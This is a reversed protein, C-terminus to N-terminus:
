VLLEEPLSHSLFNVPSATFGYAGSQLVGILDDVYLEPLFVNEAIIDLPSCLPGVVTAAKRKSSNVNDVAVVPYNKRIYQGLNGSAALQHNMGGDIVYFTKGRSVKVDIIKAVYIGAPGSIYRGLEITIHEIGMRSKLDLSQKRLNEAIPALDISKEGPFYPIGFGGGLNLRHIKTGTISTLKRILDISYNQSEIISQSDLIQSGHYVHFGSVCQQTDKCRVLIDGICESDIGFPKAGGGMTVGSRKISHDPNIRLIINATAKMASSIKEIRSLEGASEVSLLVGSSIACALEDDTKGPGAFSIATSDVGSNLALLMEKHSAVDFGDLHNALFHVISPMPNSKIAYTLKVSEGFALRLKDVQKALQHRSYAFFPTSLARHMLSRVSLDNIFLKNNHVSFYELSDITEQVHYTDPKM